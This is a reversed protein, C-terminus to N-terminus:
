GGYSARGERFARLTAQANAAIEHRRQEILRRRVIEILAEQDAVPLRDVYDLAEQFPTSMTTEM